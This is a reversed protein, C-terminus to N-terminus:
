CWKASASDALLLSLIESDPFCLISSLAKRSLLYLRSPYRRAFAPLSRTEISSLAFPNGANEGRRTESRSEKNSNTSDACNAAAKSGTM